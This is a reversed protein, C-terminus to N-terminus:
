WKGSGSKWQKAWKRAYIPQFVVVEFDLNMLTFFV